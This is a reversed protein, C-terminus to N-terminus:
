SVAFVSGGFPRWGSQPREAGHDVRHGAALSSLRDILGRVPDLGLEEFLEPYDRCLLLTNRRLAECLM